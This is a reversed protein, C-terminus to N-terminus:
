LWTKKTIVRYQNISMISTKRWWVNTLLYFIVSILWVIEEQMHCVSLHTMTNEFEFLYLTNSNLKDQWPKYSHRTLRTCVVPIIFFKYFIDVNKFKMVISLVVKFVRNLYTTGVHRANTWRRSICTLNVSIQYLLVSKRETFGYVNSPLVM